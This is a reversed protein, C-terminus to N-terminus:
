KVDVPPHGVRLTWNSGELYNKAIQRILELVDTRPIEVFLKPEVASVYVPYGSRHILEIFLLINDLICNFQM